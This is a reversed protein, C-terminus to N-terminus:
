GGEMERLALRPWFALSVYDHAELHSQAQLYMTRATETDGATLLEDGMATEIRGTLAIDNLKEATNLMRELPAMRELGDTAGRRLREVRRVRLEALRGIQEGITDHAERALVRARRAADRAIQLAVRPDPQTSSTRALETACEAVFAHARGANLPQNNELLLTAAPRALALARAPDRRVVSTLQADLWYLSAAHSPSTVPWHARLAYGEDRYRLALSFRGTECAQWGLSLVLDLQRIPDASPGEHALHRLAELADSYHGFAQEHLSCSHALAGALYLLEVLAVNDQLEEAADLAREIANLAQPAADEGAYALALAYETRLRQEACMAKTRFPILAVYAYYYADQRAKANHLWAYALRLADALPPLYNRQQRWTAHDPLHFPTQLRPYPQHSQSGEQEAM